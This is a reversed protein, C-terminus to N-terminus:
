EPVGLRGKRAIAARIREDRRFWEGAEPGDAKFGRSAAWDAVTRRAETWPATEDTRYRQLMFVTAGHNTVTVGDVILDRGCFPLLDRVAGTFYGADKAALLLRGEATELGLLRAGRGCEPPCSGTLRCAVDVVRARATFIEEGTLGILDAADAGRALGLVLLAALLRALVTM